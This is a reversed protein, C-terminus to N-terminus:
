RHRVVGDRTTVVRPSAPRRGATSPPACRRAPACTAPATAGMREGGCVAVRLANRTFIRCASKGQRMDEVSGDPRTNKSSTRRSFPITPGDRGRANIGTRACGASGRRRYRVPTMASATVMAARPSCASRMLARVVLRAERECRPDDGDPVSKSTPLLSCLRSSSEWITSFCALRSCRTDSRAERLWATANCEDKPDHARRALEASRKASGGRELGARPDDWENRSSGAPNSLQKGDFRERGQPTDTSWYARELDCSRRGECRGGARASRMGRVRAKVGHVSIPRAGQGAYWRTSRRPTNRVTRGFRCTM